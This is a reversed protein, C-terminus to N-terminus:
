EQEKRLVFTTGKNGRAIRINDSLYTIDIWGKVADRFLPSRFPVPYPIQFKGGFLNFRGEDFVFNIRSNPRNIDEAAEEGILSVGLINLGLIKGTGQRDTLEELPYNATSALATVCLDASDSFKVIQNVLLTPKESSPAAFVIDQYINFKTADVAKRQIPSSTDTNTTHLLRWKGYVKTSIAPEEIGDGSEELQQVLSAIQENNDLRSNSNSAIADLLKQELELNGNKVDFASPTFLKPIEFKPLLSQFGVTYSPYAVLGFCVSLKFCRM